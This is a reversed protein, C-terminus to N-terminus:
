IIRKILILTAEAIRLDEPSTIKINERNGNVLHVTKGHFELVSADDTINASFPINYADALVSFRFTQPTQVLRVANRDIPRNGGADVMRVSDPVNVCPIASGMLEAQVFCRHITEASVLPRVGDHIAVLAEPESILALGNKVSYFRESGGIAIQHQVTFSYETCLKTWYDVHDQPLVLIIRVSADAAVFAEISHMLVPRGHLLLFQKPIDAGMRLGKGGAVIIAYRALAM